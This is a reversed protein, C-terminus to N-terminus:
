SIYEQKVFKIYKYDKPYFLKKYYIADYIRHYNISLVNAIEHVTFNNNLMDQIKKINLKNGYEYNIWTPLENIDFFLKCLELITYDRIDPDYFKYGKRIWFEKKMKDKNKIDEFDHWQSQIEIAIKLRHNVIDTPCIKHTIPNIYTKDELITDPYYHIFLQKLVIAHLSENRGDCNPCLVHSRNNNDNKNVNRWPMNIIEGCRICEFQLNDHASIYTNSVCKFPVNNLKLYHNINNITYDNSRDFRRGIGHRTLYNNLVVYVYYGKGDICLMKTKTNIYKELLILGDKELVTKVIETNYKDQNQIFEGQLVCIM